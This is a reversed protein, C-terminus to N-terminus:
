VSRGVRSPFVFSGFAGVDAGEVLHLAGLLTSSDLGHMKMFAMAIRPMFSATSSGFELGVMDKPSTVNAGPNLSFVCYPPKQYNVAVMKVAAAAGGGAVLSPVDIFGIQAVGADVNKIADATGKSPIVTVDLGEQKYYGKAIPVYWPAHRGLAIFDLTFTIKREQAGAAAPLLSLVVVAVLGRMRM